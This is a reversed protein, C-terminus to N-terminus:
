VDQKRTPDALVLEDQWVVASLGLATIQVYQAGAACPGPQVTWITEHNQWYVHDGACWKTIGGREGISHLTM